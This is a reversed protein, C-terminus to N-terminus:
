LISKTFAVLTFYLLTYEIYTIILNVDPQHKYYTRCKHLYTMGVNQKRDKKQGIEELWAPPIHKPPLPIIIFQVTTAAGSM